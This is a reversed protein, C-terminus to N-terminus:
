SASVPAGGDSREIARVLRAAEASLQLGQRLLDEVSADAPLRLLERKERELRVWEPNAPTLLTRARRPLWTM